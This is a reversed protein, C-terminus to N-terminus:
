AWCVRRPALPRRRRVAVRDIFDPGFSFKEWHSFFTARSVGIARSLMSLTMATGESQALYLRALLSLVFAM